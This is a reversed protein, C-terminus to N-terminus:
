EAYYIQSHTSKNKVLHLKDLEQSNSSTHLNKYSPRNLNYENNTTTHLPAEVYEISSRKRENLTPQSAVNTTHFQMQSLSKLNEPKDNFDGRLVPKPKSLAGIVKNKYDEARNYLNRDLLEGMRMNKGELEKIMGNLRM